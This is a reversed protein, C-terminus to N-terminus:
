RSRQREAIQYRERTRFFVARLRTDNRCIQEVQEAFVADAQGYFARAAVDAEALTKKNDSM